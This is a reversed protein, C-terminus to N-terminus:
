GEDKMRRYDVAKMGEKKKRKQEYMLKDADELLDDISRQRSFDHRVMGASMSLRYPRDAERNHSDINKQLRDMILEANFSSDGTMVVAFEDGGMRAVIDAERFLNKLINAADLIAMDGYKHGLVDNIWKLGDLDAFFLSIAQKMRAAIKFAQETFILFGRRNYIKTFEDTMSLNRITEEAQKKETIDRNIELTGCLRGDEDKLLKYRSWVVLPIGNRRTQTVEGEWAGDKLLISAIEDETMPLVSKLLEHPYRGDSEGATWGYQLEAAHNWYAIRDDFDRIIIADNALDLMQAQRRLLAERQKRETVNKELNEAMLNFTRSLIGIEDNSPVEVKVGYNGRGIMEAAGTLKRVSLTLRKTIFFVMVMFLASSALTIMIINRLMHTIPGAVYYAPFELLLGWRNGKYGPAGRQQVAVGYVRDFRSSVPDCTTNYSSSSSSRIGELTKRVPEIDMLSKELIVNRNCAKGAILKGDKNFLEANVTSPLADLLDIVSLWSYNGIVSGLAQQRANEPNKVPASIIITPKNLTQSILLDSRYRKGRLAYDFVIKYQSMDNIRLGRHKPYTSAIVAGSADVIELSYWHASLQMVKELSKELTKRIEADTINRDGGKQIRNKQWAALCQEITENNAVTWIDECVDALMRDIADMTNAATQVMNKSITKRLTDKASYFVSVGLAPIAVILAVATLLMVKGFIKM